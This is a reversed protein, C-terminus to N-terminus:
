KDSWVALENGTPDIFHFRRGGPFSFIDKSITGLSEVIKNKIEELNKHYLVVLVGNIIPEESKEFGGDLGSESFAVYTPGYDTFTWNFASTYFAKIKGLDNAKFEVYTIHNDKLSM